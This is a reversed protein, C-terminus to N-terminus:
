ERPVPRGLWMFVALGLLLGIIAAVVTGRLRRSLDFGYSAIPITWASFFFMTAVFLHKIPIAQWLAIFVAVSTVSLLMTRLSFRRVHGAMDRRCQIAIFYGILVFFPMAGVIGETFPRARPSMIQYAVQCESRDM